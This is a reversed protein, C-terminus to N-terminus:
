VIKSSQICAIFSFLAKKTAFVDFSFTEIHHRKGIWKSDLQKEKAIQQYMTVYLQKYESLDRGFSPRTKLNERAYYLENNVNDVIEVNYNFTGKWKGFLIDSYIDGVLIKEDVIQSASNNGKASIGLFNVDIKRKDFVNDENVIEVYEDATINVVRNSAWEGEVIVNGSGNPKIMAPVTVNYAEIGTGIFEVDTGYEDAYSTFYLYSFFLVIILCFMTRKM